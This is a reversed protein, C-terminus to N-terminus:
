QAEPDDGTVLELRKGQHKALAARIAQEAAPRDGLSGIESDGILAAIEDRAKAGATYRYVRDGPCREDVCFVDVEGSWIMQPGGTGDYHLVVAPREAHHRVREYRQLIPAWTSTPKRRAGMWRLLKVLGLAVALTAGTTVFAVLGIDWLHSQDM